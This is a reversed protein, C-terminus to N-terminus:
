RPAPAAAIPSFFSFLFSEPNLTLEFELKLPSSAAAAGLVLSKAVVTFFPFFFHIFLSRAICVIGILAALSGDLTQALILANGL